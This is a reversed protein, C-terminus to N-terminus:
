SEAEKWCRCTITSTLEVAPIWNWLLLILKMNVEIVFIDPSSLLQPCEMEWHGKGQCHIYIDNAKSRQSYGVKGKGKGMGVLATPHKSHKSGKQRKSIGRGANPEKVKQRPPQLKEKFGELKEVLSLMKVEQSQVSSGDAMKIGFFPKTATYRIHRNSVAYVEKMRLM